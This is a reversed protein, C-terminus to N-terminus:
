ASEGSLGETDERSSKIIKDEKDYSVRGPYVMNIFLGQYPCLVSESLSLNGPANKCLNADIWTPCQDINDFSFKSARQRIQACETDDSSVNTDLTPTVVDWLMEHAKKTLVHVTTNHKIWSSFPLSHYKKPLSELVQMLQLHERKQHKYILKIAKADCAKQFSLYKQYAKELSNFNTSGEFDAPLYSQFLLPMTYCLGNWIVGPIYINRNFNGRTRIVYYVIEMIIITALPSRIQISSKIKDGRSLHFSRLKTSSSFNWCWNFTIIRKCRCLKLSIMILCFLLLLNQVTIVNTKM